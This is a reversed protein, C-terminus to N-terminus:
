NFRMLMETKQAFMNLSKVRASESFGRYSESEVSEKAKVSLMVVNDTRIWCLDAALSKLQKLVDMM